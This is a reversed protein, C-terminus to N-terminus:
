LEVAMEPELRAFITVGLVACVLTAIGVYALGAASPWVGFFAVDHISEM